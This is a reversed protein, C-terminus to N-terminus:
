VLADDAAVQVRTAPGDYGLDVGLADADDLRRELEDRALQVIDATASTPVQANSDDTRALTLMQHLMRTMARVAQLADQLAEARREPDQARQASELQVRLTAVPTRMQHAANVIFRENLRHAEALRAILANIQAILPRVEEPADPALPIPALQADVHANATQRVALQLSAIGRGIGWWVLAATAAAMALSISISIWLLQSALMTRLGGTEGIRVVVPGGGETGLRVSLLRITDGGITARYSQKAGPSGLPRPAPALEANGAIRDGNEAIVEYLIGVDREAIPLAGAPLAVAGVGDKWDIRNALAIAFDYLRQDLLADSYHRAVAYAAAGALLTLLLLPGLLRVLLTRRISPLGTTM